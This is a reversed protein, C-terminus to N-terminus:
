QLRRFAKRPLFTLAWRIYSKVRTPYMRISAAYAKRGGAPDGLWTRETGLCAWNHALARRMAEDHPRGARLSEADKSLWERIRRADENMKDSDLFANAGHVRYFCLPEDIYGVAHRSAIRLWMHWDGCGYFGPDFAGTEAICSARFLTSSTIIKNFEVLAAFVDGTETRPYPFGLPEGEVREGEPGIFWGGVHTLAIDPRSDLMAVQKALKEPAWLDDDNLVALFEGRAIEIAANLAGYTGLNKENFLLRLRPDTQRSLWERTGDTSGDDVAVIEFDAFTQELISAFCAELYRLHNYCTLLITVRPSM